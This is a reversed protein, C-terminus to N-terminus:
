AAASQEVVAGEVDPFVEWVENLAGSSWSRGVILAIRLFTEPGMAKAAEAATQYVTQNRDRIYLGPGAEVVIRYGRPQDYREWVIGREDM